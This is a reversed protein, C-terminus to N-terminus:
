QLAAAKDLCFDWFARVRPSLLRGGSRVLFLPAAEGRWDPLAAVLRGTALDRAVDLRSKYAVGCGRRAWDSVVAGDAAYRSPRLSLAVVDDGRQFRWSVHVADRLAFALCAHGALQQPTQPLGHRAWYDPSAVAVRCNGAVLPVAILGAERMPGYRLAIDLSEAVLDDVRDSLTLMPVVAPHGAVFEEVWDLVFQRGFDSPMSLRLPGSLEGRQGALEDLGSTLADQAAQASRYWIEGEPTLTLRRTSRQFLRAGLQTELRKLALSLAAPTQGLDRAAASLSSREVIRLFWQWDAFGPGIM